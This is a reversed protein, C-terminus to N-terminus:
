RGLVYVVLLLVLWVGDVFHWYWEALQFPRHAREGLLGTASLGLLLSISILGLTVHVAHCGILTYYTTGFLNTSITLHRKEILEHWEYATGALFLAGLLITAALGLATQSRRNWASQRAAWWLTASSALLFLTNALAVPLSLAEAPTPGTESQGLFMLYTIILTAFFATESILFAVMGIRPADDHGFAVDHVPALFDEVRMPKATNFSM